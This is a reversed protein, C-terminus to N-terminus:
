VQRYGPQPQVTVGLAHIQFDDAAGSLVVKFVIGNVEARV